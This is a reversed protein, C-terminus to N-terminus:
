VRAMTRVRERPDLALPGYTAEYKQIVTTLMLMLRKATFYSMVVRQGVPAAEKAQPNSQFAFDLILEEPTGSARCFNAYLTALEIGRRAKKRAALFAAKDIGGGANRAESGFLKDFDRKGLVAEFSKLSRDFLSNCRDAYEADAIKGEQLLQILDFQQSRMAAHIEDLQQRKGSDVADGLFVDIMADLEAQRTDM